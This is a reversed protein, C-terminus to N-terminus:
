LAAFSFEENKLKYISFEKLRSLNDVVALNKESVHHILLYYKSLQMQWRVIKNNAADSILVLCLARHDIYLLMSYLHEVILWRIEKLCQFIM